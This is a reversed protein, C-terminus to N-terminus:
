TIHQAPPKCPRPAPSGCRGLYRMVALMQMDYYLGHNCMSCREPEVPGSELYAKYEELWARWAAEDAATWAGSDRILYIGDLVNGINRFNINGQVAPHHWRWAQM